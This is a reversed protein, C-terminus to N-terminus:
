AGVGVRERWAAQVGVVVSVGIHASDAARSRWGPWAAQRAMFTVSM